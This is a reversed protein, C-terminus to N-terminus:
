PQDKGLEPPGLLQFIERPGVVERFTDVWRRCFVEVAPLELRDTQLLDKVNKIEKKNYNLRELAPKLVKYWKMFKTTHAKLDAKLKDFCPRRLPTAPGGNADQGFAAREGPGLTLLTAALMSIMWSETKM